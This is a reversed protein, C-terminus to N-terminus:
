KLYVWSDDHEEPVLVSIACPPAYLSSKDNKNNDTAHIRFVFCATTQLLMCTTDTVRTLTTSSIAM